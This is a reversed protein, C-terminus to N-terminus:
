SEGGRGDEGQAGIISDDEDAHMGIVILEVEESGKDSSSVEVDAVVLGSPSRSFVEVGDVDVMFCDHDWNIVFIRDEPGVDIKFSKWEIGMGRSILGLGCGRKVDDDGSTSSAFAAAIFYGNVGLFRFVNWKVDGIGVGEGRDFFGFVVILGLL